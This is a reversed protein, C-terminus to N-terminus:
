PHSLRAYQMSMSVICEFNQKYFKVKFQPGGGGGLRGGPTQKHPPM